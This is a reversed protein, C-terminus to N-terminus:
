IECASSVTLAGRGSDGCGYVTVSSYMLNNRGRMNATSRRVDQPVGHMARIVRALHEDRTRSGTDGEGVRARDLGEVLRRADPRTRRVDVPRRPLVGATCTARRRPRQPMAHPRRAGVYNGVDYGAWTLIATLFASRVGRTCYTVLAVGDHYGLAALEARITARPRLENSADFAGRWPYSVSGPVRGGYESGYPAAGEFEDKQRADVIFVSEPATRIDQVLDELRVIRSAVPSPVFDGPGDEVAAGQVCAHVRDAGRVPVM